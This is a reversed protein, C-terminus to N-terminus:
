KAKDAPASPRTTARHTRYPDPDEHERADRIAKLIGLVKPDSLGSVQVFAAGDDPMFTCVDSPIFDYGQIIAVIYSGVIPPKNLATPAGRPAVYMSVHLTSHTSPDLAGALTAVPEIVAFYRSDEAPTASKVKAVIASQQGEAWYHWERGTRTAWGANCHRPSLASLAAMLVFLRMQHSDRM